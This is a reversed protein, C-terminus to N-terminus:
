RCGQDKFDIWWWGDDWELSVKRWGLPVQPYPYFPGIYPFATASYQRPVTVAAYNPSAAYSPWAYNPMCPQEFRAQAVGSARPAQYGQPPGGRYSGAIPMPRQAVRYQPRMQQPMQRAMPVMDDRMVMPAPSTMTASTRRVPARQYSTAVRQAQQPQQAPQKVFFSKLSRSLSAKKAPAQKASPAVTLRNVVKKVGKMYSVSRLATRLQDQNAVRGNLLVTGDSVKVGIEYDQLQGGDRLQTAVSDALSQNGTDATALAPCLLTAAALAVAIFTHRM